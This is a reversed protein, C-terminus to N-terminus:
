IVSNQKELLITKIPIGDYKNGMAYKKYYPNWDVGDLILTSTAVQYYQDLDIPISYYHLYGGDDYYQTNSYNIGDIIDRGSMNVNIIHDNFPFAIMFDSYTFINHFEQKSRFIGANLIATDSHFYDKIIECFKEMLLNPQKRHELTSYNTSLHYLIKNDMSQIMCKSQKMLKSFDSSYMMNSIDHLEIEISFDNYISLKAIYEANEGTRIIRKNQHYTIERTHNHGALIIDIENFQEILWKDGENSLHTMAIIHTVNQMQLSQIANTVSQYMDRYQISYKSYFTNSCIGIFGIKLQEHQIIHFPVTVNIFEEINTSLYTTFKDQQLIEKTLQPDQDFEHNGLSVINIPVLQIADIITKGHDFSTYPSPSIFDGSLVTTHPFLPDIFSKMRAYSTLEYIDSMAYITFIQYLM